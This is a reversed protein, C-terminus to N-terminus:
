PPRVLAAIASIFAPVADLTRREAGYNAERIAHDEIAIILNLMAM